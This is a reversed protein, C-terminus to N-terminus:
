PQKTDRFALFTEILILTNLISEQVKRSNEVWERWHAILQTIDQYEQNRISTEMQGLLNNPWTMGNTDSNHTAIQRQLETITEILHSAFWDVGISRTLEILTTPM